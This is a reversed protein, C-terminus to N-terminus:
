SFGCEVGGQEFVRRETRRTPFTGTTIAGAVFRSPGFCGSRQSDRSAAAIM